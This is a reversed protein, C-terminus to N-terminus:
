LPGAAVGTVKWTRTKRFSYNEDGGPRFHGNPDTADYLLGFIAEFSKPFTFGYFGYTATTTKRM